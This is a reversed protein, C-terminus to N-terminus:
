PKKINISSELPMIKSRLNTKQKEQHTRYLSNFIKLSLFARHRFIQFRGNWFPGFSLLFGAQSNDTVKEGSENKFDINEYRYWVDDKCPTEYEVICKSGHFHESGGDENNKLANRIM